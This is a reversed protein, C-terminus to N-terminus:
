EDEADGVLESEQEKRCNDWKRFTPIERRQENSNM